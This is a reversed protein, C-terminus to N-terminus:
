GGALGALLREVKRRHSHCCVSVTVRPNRRDPPQPSSALRLAPRLGAVPAVEPLVGGLEPPSEASRNESAGGSVRPVDPSLDSLHDDRARGPPRWRTRSVASGLDPCRGM